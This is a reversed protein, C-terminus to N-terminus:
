FLKQNIQKFDKVFEVFDLAVRKPNEFASFHGGKEIINFRVLNRYKLEVIKKPLISPENASFQVAVSVQEPLKCNFSPVNTQSSVSSKYIRMSSSITNTLWYFTVLTIMEDRDFHDRLGGDAKGVVDSYDLTWLSYKELIYALLGVPSDTLAHALTDPKTAQMHFFAVCEWLFFVKHRFSFKEDVKFRMEQESYLVSPLFFGIVRYVYAYFFTVDLVNPMTIHIANVRQPYLQAMITAVNAGWDEGHIAYELTDNYAHLYRLLADIYRAMNVHSLPVHLPTSYGFGPLSPVVIDFTLDKYNTEMYDIMNYFGFFSGPWGDLLVVPIRKKADLHKNTVYRVFHITVDNDIAIKFQPFRNLETVKEKWSYGSKWYDVLEKAYEPDFGFESRKVNSDNLVTFYRSLELKQVLLDWESQDFEIEFPQIETNQDITILNANAWEQIHQISETNPQHVFCELLIDIALIVFSLYFALKLASVM